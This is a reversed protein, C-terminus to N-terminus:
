KRGKSEEGDKELESILDFVKQAVVDYDYTGNEEWLGASACEKLVEIKAEREIEPRASEVAKQKESELIKYIFTRIDKILADSMEYKPVEQGNVILGATYKENFARLWDEMNSVGKKLILELDEVMYNIVNIPNSKPNNECDKLLQRLVKIVYRQKEFRVLRKLNKLTRKYTEDYSRDYEGNYLTTMILELQAEWEELQNPITVSKSKTHANCYKGCKRCFCRGRGLDFNSTQVVDSNCCDSIM